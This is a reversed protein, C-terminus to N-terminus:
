RGDPTAAAAPGAGPVSPPAEPEEGLPLRGDEYIATLAGEWLELAAPQGRPYFSELMGTDIMVVRGDVRTVIRGNARTTHGIVMRELGLANLIKASEADGAGETAGRYWLPGDSSVLFWDEWSAIPTVDAALRQLEHNSPDVGAGAAQLLQQSVQVVETAVAVHSILGAKMLRTHVSDYSALEAAARRNVAAVSLGELAPGFGGHVFLTGGEVFAVPLTRLWRGYHGQPGLAELYEVMGLPVSKFWRRRVDRGTDPPDHGFLAARRRWAWATEEFSAKRRDASDRDAFGEFINSNTDRLIGLLNMAEHNGLLCVVRGGAATAESQLRMLLDMVARVDAGRDLLDGVQVLTTTGGIWHGDDDLLGAARLIGVLGDHSGHVDGVAVIRPPRTEAALPTTAVLLAIAALLLRTWGSRRWHGALPRPAVRSTTM